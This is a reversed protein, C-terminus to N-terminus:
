RSDIILSKGVTVVLKGAAGNPAAGQAAQAATAPTEDGGANILPLSCLSASGILIAAGILITAIRRSITM